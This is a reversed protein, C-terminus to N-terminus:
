RYWPFHQMLLPMGVAVIIATDNVVIGIRLGYTQRPFFQFTKKLMFELAKTLAKPKGMINNINAIFLLRPLLGKIPKMRGRGKTFDRISIIICILSM